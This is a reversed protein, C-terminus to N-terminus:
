ARAKSVVAANAVPQGDQRSVVTGTMVNGQAAAGRVECLSLLAVLWALSRRACGRGRFM